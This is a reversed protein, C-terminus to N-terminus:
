DDLIAELRLVVLLDRGYRHRAHLLLTAGPQQNSPLAWTNPATAPQARETSRVVTTTETLANWEIGGLDIPVLWGEDDSLRTKLLANELQLDVPWGYKLGTFSWGRGFPFAEDFKPPSLRIFDVREGAHARAIADPIRTREGQVRALEAHATGYDTCAERSG